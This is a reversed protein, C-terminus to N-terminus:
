SPGLALKQDESSDLVKRGEGEVRVQSKRVVMRLQAFTWGPM